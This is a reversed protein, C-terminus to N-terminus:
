ILSWTEFDRATVSYSILLFIKKLITKQIKNPWGKRFSILLNHLKNMVKQFKKAIEAFSQNELNFKLLLKSCTNM